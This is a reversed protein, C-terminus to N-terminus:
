TPRARLKVQIRSLEYFLQCNRAKVYGVSDDDLGFLFSQGNTRGEKKYIVNYKRWSSCDLDPNQHELTETVVRFEVPPGPIWVTATPLKLSSQSCVILSDDGLNFDSVAERLWELSEADSCSVKFVGGCLGSQNFRGVPRDKPAERIKAVLQSRIYEAEEETIVSRPDLVRVVAVQLHKPLGVTDLRAMKKPQPPTASVERARKGTEPRSPAPGPAHGSNHTSDGRDTGSPGTKGKRKRKRSRKVRFGQNGTLFERPESESLASGRNASTGCEGSTPGAPEAASPGATRSSGESFEVRQECLTGPSPEVQQEGVSHPETIKEALQPVPETPAVKQIEVTATEVLQKDLRAKASTELTLHELGSSPSFVERMRPDLKPETKTKKVNEM